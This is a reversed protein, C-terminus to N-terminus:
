IEACEKVIRLVEFRMTNEQCSGFEAANNQVLDTYNKRLTKPNRGYKKM